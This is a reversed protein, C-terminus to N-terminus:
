AAELFLELQVWAPEPRVLLEDAAPPSILRAVARTAMEKLDAYRKRAVDRPCGTGLLWPKIRGSLVFNVADTRDTITTGVYELDRVTQIVVAMAVRAEWKELRNEPEPSLGNTVGPEMEPARIPDFM